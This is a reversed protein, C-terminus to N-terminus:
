VSPKEEDKQPEPQVVALEPKQQVQEINIVPNKRPRGRARRPQGALSKERREKSQKLIEERHLRYYQAQYMLRNKYRHSAIDDSNVDPSAILPVRRMEETITEPYKQKRGM